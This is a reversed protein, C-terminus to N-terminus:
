SPPMSRKMFGAVAGYIGGALDDPSDHEIDEGKGLKSTWQGNPLQRAIHTDLGAIGYLAVKENGPELSGDTCTEYGLTNFAQALAGVSFDDDSLGAPWHTGPQWWHDADGAAWAVCNYDFSPPSVLRHNVATLQPFDEPPLM